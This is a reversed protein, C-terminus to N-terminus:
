ILYEPGPTWKRIQTGLRLLGREAKYLRFKATFMILKTMM